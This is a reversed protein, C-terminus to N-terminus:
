RRTTVMAPSESEPGPQQGGARSGAWTAPPMPIHRFGDLGPSHSDRFTLMRRASAGPSHEGETIAVAGAKSAKGPRDRHSGCRPGSRARAPLLRPRFALQRGHDGGAPPTGTGQQEVAHCRVNVAAHGPLGQRTHWGRACGVRGATGCGHCETAAVSRSGVRCMGIARLSVMPRM